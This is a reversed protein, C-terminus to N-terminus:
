LQLFQLLWMILIAPAIFTGFPIRTQASLEGGSSLRARLLVTILASLSALALTMALPALGLWAGAAAALKIDGMGLGMAGRATFYLWRLALLAFGALLAAGAHELAISAWEGPLCVIAALVGAPIAPLSLMNPIVFHRADIVAIVLMVMALGASIVATLPGALGWLFGGYALSLGACPSVDLFKLDFSHRPM